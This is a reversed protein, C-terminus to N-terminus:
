RNSSDDIDEGVALTGSQSSEVIMSISPVRMKNSRSSQLEECSDVSAPEAVIDTSQATTNSVSLPTSSSSSSSSDDSPTTLEASDISTLVALSSRRTQSTGETMHRHQQPPIGRASSASGTRNTSSSRGAPQSLQQQQQWQGCKSMVKRRLAMIVEDHSVKRKKLEPGDVPASRPAHASKPDSEVIRVSLENAALSESEKFGGGPKAHTGSGYSSSPLSSGNSSSAVNGVSTSHSQPPKQPHPYTGNASKEGRTHYASPHYVNDGLPMKFFAFPNQAARADLGGPTDPHHYSRTNSPERQMSPVQMGYSGQAVMHGPKQLPQQHPHHAHALPGIPSQIVIDNRHVSQSLHSPPLMMQQQKHHEQQKFMNEHLMMEFEVRRTELRLEEQIRREYEARSRDEETKAALVLRLLDTREGYEEIIRTLTLSSDRPPPIFGAGPPGAIICGPPVTQSQQTRGHGTSVNASDGSRKATARNRGSDSRQTSSQSLADTTISPTSELANTELANGTNESTTMSTTGETINDRQRSKQTARQKSKSLTM